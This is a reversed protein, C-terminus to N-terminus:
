AIAFGHQPRQRQFWLRLETLGLGLRERIETVNGAPGVEGRVEREVVGAIFDKPLGIVRTRPLYHREPTRLYPYKCFLSPFRHSHLCNPTSPEVRENAHGRSLCLCKADLPQNTCPQLHNYRRAHRVEVRFISRSAAWVCVKSGPLPSAVQYQCPYSWLM